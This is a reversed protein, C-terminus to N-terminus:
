QNLFLSIGKRIIMIAISALFLSAIKGIGRIGEEGIFYDIREASLLFALSVICTLILGAITMWYGNTSALMLASTLLGPGALLPTGLPVIAIKGNYGIKGYSTDNLMMISIVLLVIGCAIMFDFIMIGLTLFIWRGAFIFLLTFLFASGIGAFATHRREVSSFGKTFGLFMPLIGVVNMAVFLTFSVQFFLNGTESFAMLEEQYKHFYISNFLSTESSYARQKERM